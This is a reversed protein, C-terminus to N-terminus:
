RNLVPISHFYLLEEYETVWKLMKTRINSVCVIISGRDQLDHLTVSELYFDQNPTGGVLKIVETTSTCEPKDFHEKDTQSIFGPNDLGICTGRTFILGRSELSRDSCRSTSNGSSNNKNTRSNSDTNSIDSGKVSPIGMLSPTM